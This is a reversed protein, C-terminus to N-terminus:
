AGAALIGMSQITCTTASPFTVSFLRTVTQAITMTGTLTVGTGAGITATNASGSSNRIALQYTYGIQCNPIDGFMLTATRTTLTGPTTGTNDYNVFAAGTLDGAAFTASQAAATVYKSAPLAVNPGMAVATMTITTATAITVVYRAWMNGPVIGGTVTVGVGATLTCAGLSNNYYTFGWSQGVFPGAVAAIILAATDTTDVAAATPGTRNVVGGVIAAALVTGAGVTTLNTVLENVGSGTGSSTNSLTCSIAGVNTVRMWQIVPTAAVSNDHVEIVDGLKVGMDVANAIYGVGMVTAITDSSSYVWTQAGGTLPADSQLRLNNQSYAM